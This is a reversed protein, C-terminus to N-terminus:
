KVVQENLTPAAGHSLFCHVKISPQLSIVRVHKLHHMWVRNDHHLVFLGLQTM